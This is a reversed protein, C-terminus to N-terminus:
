TEEQSLHETFLERGAWNGLIWASPIEMQLGLAFFMAMAGACYDDQHFAAGRERKRTVGSHHVTRIILALEEQNLPMIV